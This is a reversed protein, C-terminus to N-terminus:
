KTLPKLEYSEALAEYITVTTNIDSILDYLTNKYSEEDYLEKQEPTLEEWKLCTCEHYFRPTGFKIKIQVFQFKIFDTPPKAHSAKGSIHKKKIYRIYTDTICKVRKCILELFPLWTPAAWYYFDQEHKFFYDPYQAKLEEISDM